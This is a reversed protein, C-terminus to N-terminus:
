QHSNLGASITNEIGEIDIRIRRRAPNGAKTVEICGIEKLVNIVRQQADRLLGTRSQMWKVTYDFWGDRDEAKKMVSTNIMDGLIAAEEISLGLHRIFDHYVRFYSGEERMRVLARRHSADFQPQRSTRSPTSDSM